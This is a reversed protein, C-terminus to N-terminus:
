WPCLDISTRRAPCRCAGAWWPLCWTGVVTGGAGSALVAPTVGLEAAVDVPARGSVTTQWFMQWNRAEFENRVLELARRYLARLETPPDDEDAPAAARDAVAELRALADSGGSARPRMGHRQFHQLALNRTIGRLWARFSDGPRDRRFRDLGAAARQFVEQVLDDRDDRRIGQRGCWYHVLPTYLAVLRRWAAQDNGRARQLLSLSTRQGSASEPPLADPEPSM